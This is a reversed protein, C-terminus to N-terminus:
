LVHCGSCDKPGPGHGADKHCGYCRQHLADSRKPQKEDDGEVKEIKHCEFCGKPKAGEAEIWKHHCDVCKLAYNELNDLDMHGKHSFLVKGGAAGVATNLMIRVPKEPQKDPFAAYCIVGVVFFAAVVCYAIIKEKKIDM